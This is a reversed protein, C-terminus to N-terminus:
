SLVQRLFRIAKGRNLLDHCFQNRYHRLCGYCSADGDDGGCDCQELRELAASLMAKLPEPSAMRRVHGAGGPVDDFLVMTRLAPNPSAPYLCGDLDEREIELAASAGELLAYLLSHWFGIDHNEYGEFTLRLIDTEFEHGLSFYGQLRGACRSGWPTPHSDPAREGVVLAYGCQRCVRFGAKNIIALKGRSGPVAVLKTKGLHIEVADGREAEGWFYVRTTYTREPREEGPKVPGVTDAIFGFAPEIFVGQRRIREGCRSCRRFSGELDPNGTVLEERERRYFQCSDCIAYRFTEWEREPLRKIYRSTWLRGAAVVQSGPAYESLAIRLDRELQVKKAEEGHHRIELEVVDVPFGYKPIVNRSSLFDILYKNKITNILRRLRDVGQQGERYLRDMVETLQEVDSRVEDQAKRLCGDKVDFLGDMWGWRDLALREHLASPVIKKLSRLLGEPHTELYERFLEPGQHEFFFDKVVGFLRRRENSRWFASLATAYVHRRVIKENEIKFYPARVRGSVMRFPERYHDLDHSRRQAFTLAFATTDTRRGARGARQIYNAPSPPMNRMFIAELEGVDVGLEFTTSCSLANVEGSVFRQQLEAAAESTLQATHEEAVMRPPLGGMYLRFYHNEAFIEEPRCPRLKGSCRYTTCTGKVNHLTLTRCRGCLYWTLKEDIQTPRLEWLDHRLRYVVGEGPISERSFYPQWVSGRELALHRDWIKELVERSEAETITPNINRALRVLYDLRSNLVQSNWAFIGKKPSSGYARFYYGRNRPQFFADEPKVHEPFLIAGRVRLTGLLVQLLTWIEMESLNWPRDMLPRPPRWDSPKVLTFGLLGLGELSIRRDLALFEHLIWKWAENEQEQPSYRPFLQAEGVIRQLPNVLDQLRWRNTLLKDKHEALAKLILNRRLIQNYTRNLYPAFFAADQRSDSFILLKRSHALETVAEREERFGTAPSSWPDQEVRREDEPPKGKKPHIQQYLATGLVSAAADTGVLFRWVMGQPSRKGCAPCLFVKGERTAPVRILFYYNESACRCPSGLADARALAGCSGCLLYRELRGAQAPSLPFEVDEDEDLADVQDGEASLWFYEVAEREAGPQRLYEGGAQSDRRGVLYTAGCQRCAAVEFVPYEKGDQQWNERRVLFLRKEPRLALYAGEIARVFFHYRAPLLPPDEEGKKARNALDILAVLAEVADDRGPFVRQALRGLDQPGEEVAQRLSRLRDDGKLVEYLFPEWAKGACAHKAQILVTEPVGQEKGREVLEQWKKYLQVGPRGWGDGEGSIALRVAEIVDRGRPDDGEWEFPEDFLQSAFIAIQRVNEGGGLTASTAVCQLRRREGAVVRDKLRRLLMAMEIGKAGAYTHAEDIVIFRWGRAYDGDFFVTDDPRLLLYELMAYNTLSL